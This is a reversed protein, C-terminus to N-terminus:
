FSEMEWTKSVGWKAHEIFIDPVSVDVIELVELTERTQYSYEKTNGCALLALIMFNRGYEYCFRIRTNM